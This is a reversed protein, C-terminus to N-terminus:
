KNRLFAARNPSQVILSPIASLSLEGDVGGAKIAEEVGDDVAGGDTRGDLGFDTKAGVHHLQRAGLEGIHGDVRELAPDTAHGCVDAVVDAERRGIAVGARDPEAISDVLELDGREALGVILADPVSLHLVASIAGGLVEIAAEPTGAHAVLRASLERLAAVGCRRM